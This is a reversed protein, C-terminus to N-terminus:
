KSLANKEYDAEAEAKLQQTARLMDEYYGKEKLWAITGTYDDTVSYIFSTDFGDDRSKMEFSFTLLEDDISRSILDDASLKVYDADLHGALERIETETLKKEFASDGNSLTYQYSDYASVYVEKLNKYTYRKDITSAELWAQSGVLSKFQATETIEKALSYYRAMNGGGRKMYNINLSGGHDFMELYSEDFTLEEDIINGDEIYLVNEYDDLSNAYKKDSTVILEHLAAVYERGAADSIIVKDMVQDWRYPMINYSSLSIEVSSVASVAPVRKEYGTIDTTTCVLFVVACVAYIGFNKLLRLDFIRATKRAIMTAILYTVVSGILAGGYFFLRQARLEEALGGSYGRAESFLLACITMGFLTILIVFAYEAVNFTFPRGVRESKLKKYLAFAAASFIMGVIVFLLAPLVDGPMGPEPPMDFFALLPHLWRIELLLGYFYVTPFGYLFITLLGMVVFYTIPAVVNLIAAVIIHLPTTGTIVGAFVTLAYIFFLAILTIVLYRLLDGADTHYADNM